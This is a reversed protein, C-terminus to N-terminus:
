RNAVFIESGPHQPLLEVRDKASRRNDLIGCPLAAVGRQEVATRMSNIDKRVNDLNLLVLRESIDSFAPFHTCMSLSAKPLADRMGGRGNIAMKCSNCSVLLSSDIGRPVYRVAFVVSLREAVSLAIVRSCEKTCIGCHFVQLFRPM